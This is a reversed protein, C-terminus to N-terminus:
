RIKPVREVETLNKLFTPDKYGLTRARAGQAKFKAVDKLGFYAWALYANGTVEDPALALGKELAAVAETYRKAALHAGGLYIWCDARQAGAGAAATTLESVARDLQAVKPDTLAAGLQIRYDTNAPDLAVAKEYFPVAGAADGKFVHLAQGAYYNAEASKPALEIAKKLEALAQDAQRKALYARGLGIRIEASSPTQQSLQTLDEIALEPQNQRLLALAKAVQAKQILGQAEPDDPALAGAIQADELAREAQNLTIKVLVSEKYAPLAGPAADIIAKLVDAAEGARGTKRLVRALGLKATLNMPQAGLAARFASEAAGNDARAEQALGLAAQSPAGGDAALAKQALALAEDGRGEKARVSALAITPWLGEPDAAIAAEATAAPDGTGWGGEIVAQRGAAEGKVAGSEKAAVARLLELAPEAELKGDHLAALRLSLIAPAGEKETAQKLAGIAGDVDGAQLREDAKALAAETPDVGKAPQKGKKEAAAAPLALLAAALVLHQLKMIEEWL